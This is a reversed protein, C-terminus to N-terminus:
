RRIVVAVGALCDRGNTAQTRFYRRDAASYVRERTANSEWSEIQSIPPCQREPPRSAARADAAAAAAERERLELRQRAADYRAAAAAAPDPDTDRAITSQKGSACPQDSYTVKGGESCKYLQQAQVVGACAIWALAVVGYRM